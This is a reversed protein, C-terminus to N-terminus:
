GRALRCLVILQGLHRQTHEAIHFALGLATVPVRARGVFRNETFESERLERIQAMAATIAGTAAALLDDAEAGAHQENALAALQAESLAEGRLYTSLRDVSGAIHQLHFGAPACAGHTTWLQVTTLGATFRPLDELVQELARLAPNLLPNTNPLPGRLWPERLPM